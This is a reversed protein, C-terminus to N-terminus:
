HACVDTLMGCQPVSVDVDGSTLPVCHEFFDIPFKIHEGKPGSCTFVPLFSTRPLSCHESSATCMHVCSTPIFSAGEWEGEAAGGM